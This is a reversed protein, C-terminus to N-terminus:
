SIVASPSRSLFTTTAPCCVGVDVPNSESDRSSWGWVSFLAAKSSKKLASEESGGEGEDVGDMVM